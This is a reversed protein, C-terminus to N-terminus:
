PFGCPIWQCGTSSKYRQIDTAPCRGNGLEADEYTILVITSLPNDLNRWSDFELDADTDTFNVTITADGFIFERGAKITAVSCKGM